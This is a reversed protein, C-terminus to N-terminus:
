WWNIRSDGKLFEYKKFYDDMLAILTEVCDINYVYKVRSNTPLNAYKIVILEDTYLSFNMDYYTDRSKSYFVRDTSGIYKKYNKDLNKSDIQKKYFTYEKNKCLGEVNDFTVPTSFLENSLISM